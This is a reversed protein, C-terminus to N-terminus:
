DIYNLIYLNYYYLGLRRRNAQFVHVLFRCWFAEPSSKENTLNNAM